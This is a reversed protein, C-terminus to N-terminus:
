VARKYKVGNAPNERKVFPVRKCKARRSEAASGLSGLAKGFCVSAAGPLSEGVTELPSINYLDSKGMKGLIMIVGAAILIVSLRKLMKM